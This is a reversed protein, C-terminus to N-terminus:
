IYMSPLIKKLMRMLFIALPLFIWGGLVFSMVFPAAFTDFFGFARFANSFMLIGNPIFLQALNISIFSLLHGLFVSVPFILYWKKAQIKNQFFLLFLFVSIFFIIAYPAKITEVKVMTMPIRGLPTFKWFLILILVTIM